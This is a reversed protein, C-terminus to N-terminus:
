LEEEGGSPEGQVEREAAEDAREEPWWRMEWPMRVEAEGRAEELTRELVREPEAEADIRELRELPDAPLPLTDKAGVDQDEARVHVGGSPAISVISSTSRSSAEPGKKGIRM